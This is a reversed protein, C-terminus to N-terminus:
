STYEGELAYKGFVILGVSAIPTIILMVIIGFILDEQKGSTIKPIGLQFIGFYAAALGLFIWLIGLWRRL